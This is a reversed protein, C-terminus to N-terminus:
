PQQMRVPADHALNLNGSVIVQEGARLGDSIAVETENEHTITVYHWKALGKEATFVVKHGSHEVVASKPIILQNSIRQEVVVRANMGEFLTADPRNLRAKILVLGQANVLPNIETVRGTYVRQPLAIPLVRVLQGVQVVALESELVSFEVLLGDRSLLTCFPEYSTIFNFPKASLNAIQGAYPARLVTYDLQQRAQTLATQAQYYGSKSLVFARANPKLTITDLDDGGYEAILGRLQAQAQRYLDLAVRLAMQQDRDDLRALVQGATVGGGNRSSIQSITGGVRFSLKSQAPARLLGTATTTLIFTGLRPLNHTVIFRRDTAPRAHQTSDDQATTNTISQCALLLWFAVLFHCLLRISKNM